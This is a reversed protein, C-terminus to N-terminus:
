ERTNQRGNMENKGDREKRCDLRIFWVSFEWRTEDGETGRM